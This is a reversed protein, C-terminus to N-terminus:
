SNSRGSRGSRRPRIVQFWLYLVVSLGSLAFWQFAYGQHRHLGTAPVPWERLLGSAEGEQAQTQLISIPRLRLRHEEAFL